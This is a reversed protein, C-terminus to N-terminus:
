GERGFSISGTFTWSDQTIVEIDVINKTNDYRVPKIEADVLYGNARLFRESEALVRYAYVDGPQFLLQRRIVSDRTTVHFANALRFVFIDEEPKNPDFVNRRTVIINGIKAQNQELTLHDPVRQTEILAMTPLSSPQVTTSPQQPLVPDEAVSVAPLLTLLVFWLRHTFISRKIKKHNTM